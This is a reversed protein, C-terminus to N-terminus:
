EIMDEIDTTVVQIVSAIRAKLSDLALNQNLVQSLDNMRQNIDNLLRTNNNFKEMLGLKLEYSELIKTARKVADYVGQRSINLDEAIEGLSLDELCYLSLIDKQKDTLLEGYFAFLEAVRMKKSIM